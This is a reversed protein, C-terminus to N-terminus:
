QISEDLFKRAEDHDHAMITIWVRQPGVRFKYERLKQRNETPDEALLRKVRDNWWILFHHADSVTPGERVLECGAAHAQRAANIVHDTFRYDESSSPHPLADRTLWHLTFSVIEEPTKKGTPDEAHLDGAVTLYTTLSAVQEAFDTPIKTPGSM